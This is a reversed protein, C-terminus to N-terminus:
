GARAIIALATAIHVTVSDAPRSRRLLIQLLSRPSVVPRSILVLLLRVEYLTIESIWSLADTM